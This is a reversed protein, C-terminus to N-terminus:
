PSLVVNARAADAAGRHSEPTNRLDDRYHFTFVKVKGSHSREASSNQMGSVSSIDIHCDTNALLAADIMKPRELWASEDLFYIETLIHKDLSLDAVWRKLKANEERLQRLM